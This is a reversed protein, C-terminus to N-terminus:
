LSVELLKNENFKLFSNLCNAWDEMSMSIKREEQLEAYDLYISVIRELYNTEFSIYRKGASDVFTLYETNSSCIALGKKKKDAM